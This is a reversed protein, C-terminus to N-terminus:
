PHVGWSFLPCGRIRFVYYLIRVRCELASGVFPILILSRLIMISSQKTVQTFDRIGLEEIAHAQLADKEM